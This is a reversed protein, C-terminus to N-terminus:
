EVIRLRPNKRLPRFVVRGSEGFIRWEGDAIEEAKEFINRIENTDLIKGIMPTFTVEINEGKKIIVGIKIWKLM